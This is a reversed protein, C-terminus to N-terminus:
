FSMGAEFILRGFDAIFCDHYRVREGAGM